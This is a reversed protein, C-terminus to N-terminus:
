ITAYAYCEQAINDREVQNLKTSYNDLNRDIEAKVDARFQEEVDGGVEDGTEYAEGVARLDDNSSAKARSIEQGIIAKTEQFIQNKYAEFTMAGSAIERDYDLTALSNLVRGCRGNICVSKGKEICDALSNAVAERMLERNEANKPHDCRAWTYAFINDERDGLTSIREGSSVKELTQLASAAKRRGIDDASFEGQIYKKADSVCEEVTLGPRATSKMRQLFVRLDGNVKTDHVNQADDTFATAADFVAGIAEARTEAANVADAKRAAVIEKRAPGARQNVAHTLGFVAAMTADDMYDAPAGIVLRNFGEIQDLMFDDTFPQDGGPHTRAYGMRVVADVYDRAVAAVAQQIPREHVDVRGGLINYQLIRGRAFTDAPTPARINNLEAIAARAAADDTGRSAKVCASALKRRGADNARFFIWYIFCIAAIILAAYALERFM